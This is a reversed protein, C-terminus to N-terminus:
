IMSQYGQESIDEQEEAQDVLMRAKTEAAALEEIGEVFPFVGRGVAVRPARENGVVPGSRSIYPANFRRTILRGGMLSVYRPNLSNPENIYQDIPIQGDVWM